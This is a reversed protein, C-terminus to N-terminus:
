NFYFLVWTNGTKKIDILKGFSVTATVSINPDVGKKNWMIGYFLSDSIDIVGRNKLLCQGEKLLM